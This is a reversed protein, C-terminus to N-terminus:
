GVKLVFKVDYIDCFTGENGFNTTQNQEKFLFKNKM